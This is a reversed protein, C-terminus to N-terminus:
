ALERMLDGLVSEVQDYPIQCSGAGRHGGGGYRAMLTGVDVTCTRNIISHGVALVAFEKQKGDIIRISVNSRPYLTYILFRNGALNHDINRFDTVVCNGEDFSHLVLLETFKEQDQKYRDVRENVDPDAVIDDASQESLLDILKMMLQYNSIKFDHYYGLGTRSDTIYGLLIWNDPYLIDDIRLDAADIKDAAKVLKEYRSFRDVGYYNVIVRSTSPAIEILGNYHMGRTRDLETIHHDFWLGVGEVFPLNTVVDDSNVVIKADQMDKPHVFLIEDFTLIQKLLVASVLGDFDSRTILRMTQSIIGKTLGIYSKM